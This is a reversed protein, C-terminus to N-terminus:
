PKRPRPPPKQVPEKHWLFGWLGLRNLNSSAVALNNAAAQVNASLEQDRLVAGALGKGAQLNTMLEKLIETSSEINKTAATIEVGNTVLVGRASSALLTLQSSFFLVNSLALNVQTGNTVILGNIQAVSDLAQASFERMNDVTVTFNTMTHANLVVQQMETVSADLKKAITDIRQIFGVASRAAEQMNFPPE